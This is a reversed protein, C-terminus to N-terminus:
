PHSRAQAKLGVPHTQFSGRPVGLAAEVLAPIDKLILLICVWGSVARVGSNFLGLIELLM